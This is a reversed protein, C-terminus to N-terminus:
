SKWDESDTELEGITFITREEPLPTKSQARLARVQIRIQIRKSLQLLAYCLQFIRQSGVWAVPHLQVPM